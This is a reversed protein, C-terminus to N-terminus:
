FPLLLRQLQDEAGASVQQLEVFTSHFRDHSHSVFYELEHDFDQGYPKPIDSPPESAVCEDRIHMLKAPFGNRVASNSFETDAFFCFWGAEPLGHETQSDSITALDIQALFHMPLGTEKSRPWRDAPMKPVGGVWSTSSQGVAMRKILYSVKKRWTFRCASYKASRIRVQKAIVKASHLQTPLSILIGTLAWVLSRNSKPIRM